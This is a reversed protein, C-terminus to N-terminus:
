ENPAGYTRNWGNAPVMENAWKSFRGIVDPEFNCRHGPGRKVVDLHDPISPMSKGFYVFHRSVLVSKGNLDHEMAGPEHPSNPRQEFIGREPDFSYINDGLLNSPSPRRDPFERDYDEFSLPDDTVKM